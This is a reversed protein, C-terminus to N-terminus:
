PLMSKGLFLMSAVRHVPGSHSFGYVHGFGYRKPGQCFTTTSLPVPSLGNPRHPFDLDKLLRGEVIKPKRLSYLLYADESGCIFSRM